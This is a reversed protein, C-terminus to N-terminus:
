TSSKFQPLLEYHRAHDGDRHFTCINALVRKVDAESPNGLEKRLDVMRWYDIRAGELDRRAFLQFIEERMAEDGLALRAKKEPPANDEAIKVIRAKNQFRIAEWTDMEKTVRTKQNDDRVRKQIMSEYEATQLPQMFFAHEVVGQIEVGGDGRSFVRMPGSLSENVKLNFDTTTALSAAESADGTLHFTIGDAKGDDSMHIRLKGVLAEEDKEKADLLRAIRPPVKVLWVPRRENEGLRVTDDEEENM